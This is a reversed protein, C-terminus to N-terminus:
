DKFKVTAAQRFNVFPNWFAYSPILFSSACSDTESEEPRHPARVYFACSVCPDCFLGSGQRYTENRMENGMSRWSARIM